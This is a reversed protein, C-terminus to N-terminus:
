PTNRLDIHLIPHLEIGNPAVGTQGHIRDFFAVGRVTVYVNKPTQRATLPGGFFKDIAALVETIEKLFRSKGACGPDPSEIIMTRGRNDKVVIHYDQDAEKKILTLQGSIEFTQFETPKYRTDRRVGPNIPAGIQVLKAINTKQATTNVRAVDKDEGVKVPWREKGCAFLSSPVAVTLSVLAILVVRLAKM